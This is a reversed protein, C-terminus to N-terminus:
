CHCWSWCYCCQVFPRHLVPQTQSALDCLERMGVSM